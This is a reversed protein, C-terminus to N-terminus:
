EQGKPAPLPNSHEPVPETVARFQLPPSKWDFPMQPLPVVCPTTLRQGEANRIEFVIGPRAMDVCRQWEDIPIWDSM